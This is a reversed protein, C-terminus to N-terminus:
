STRTEFSPVFQPLATADPEPVEPRVVIEKGV